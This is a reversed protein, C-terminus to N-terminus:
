SLTGHEYSALPKFSVTYSATPDHPLASFLGAEVPDHFHGTSLPTPCTASSSYGSHATFSSSHQCYKCSSPSRQHNGDFVEVESPNDPRGSSVSTSPQTTPPPAVMTNAKLALNLQLHPDASTTNAIFPPGSTTATWCRTSHFKPQQCLTQFMPTRVFFCSPLM